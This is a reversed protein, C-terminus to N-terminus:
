PSMKICYWNDKLFLSNTKSTKLHLTKNKDDRLFVTEKCDPVSIVYDEASLHLAGNNGFIQSFTDLLDLM